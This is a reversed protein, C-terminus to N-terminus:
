SPVPGPFHAVDQSPSPSNEECVRRVGGECFEVGRRYATVQNQRTGSCNKFYKPPLHDPSLRRGNRGSEDNGAQAVTARNFGCKRYVACLPVPKTGSDSHALLHKRGSHSMRDIRLHRDSPESILGQEIGFKSIEVTFEDVM